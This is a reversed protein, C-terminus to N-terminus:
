RRRQQVTPLSALANRAIAVLYYARAEWWFRQWDLKPDYPQTM